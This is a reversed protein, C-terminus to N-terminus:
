EAYLNELISKKWSGPFRDMIEDNFFFFVILGSRKKNTIKFINNYFLDLIIKFFGIEIKMEFYFMYKRNGIIKQIM